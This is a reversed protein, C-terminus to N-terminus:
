TISPEPAKTTSLWTSSPTAYVDVVCIAMVGVNPESIASKALCRPRIRGIVKAVVKQWALMPEEGM